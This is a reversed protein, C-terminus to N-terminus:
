NKKNQFEGFYKEEALKRANIADQKNDFSGLSKQKQNITIYARWKNRDKRYSVGPVDSTNSQLVIKNMNNQQHTALRLNKRTNDLPNHNIHDVVLDKPCNILYRHLSIKEKRCIVYNNTGLTWKYKSCKDIDQLDIITSTKKQGNNNYLIIEAYNEHRIIENKDYRTREKIQGYRYVQKYHKNCM